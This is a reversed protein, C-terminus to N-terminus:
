RSGGPEEAQTLFDEVSGIGMGELVGAQVPDLYSVATVQNSRCAAGRVALFRRSGDLLLRQRYTEIVEPLQSFAGDLGIGENFWGFLGCSDRFLGCDQMPTEEQAFASGPSTALLPLAVALLTIFHTQNSKM